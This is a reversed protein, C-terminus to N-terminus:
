ALPPLWGVRRGGANRRLRGITGAFPEVSAGGAGFRHVDEQSVRGLVVQIPVSRNSSAWAWVANRTLGTLQAAKAAPVGELAVLEFAQYTEPAAERRVLDLLVNLM